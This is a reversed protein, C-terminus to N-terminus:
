STFPIFSYCRYWDKNASHVCKLCL